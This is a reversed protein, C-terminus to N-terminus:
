VSVKWMECVSPAAISTGAYPAAMGGFAKVVAVASTSSAPFGLTSGWRCIDFADLAVKAYRM